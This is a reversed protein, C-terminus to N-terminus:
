FYRKLTTLDIEQAKAGLVSRVKHQSTVKIKIQTVNTLGQYDVDTSYRIEYTGGGEAITIPATWLPLPDTTSPVETQLIAEDGKMAAIEEIVQQGLGTAIQIASSHSNTQIAAVQLQALGLLGIALICVAIMMELLTFGRQNNLVPVM